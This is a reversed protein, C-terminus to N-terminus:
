GVEPADVPKAGRRLWVNGNIMSSIGGHRDLSDARVALYVHMVVFMWLAFMMGTHFMRVTPIGFWNCPTAALAWIWNGQHYLGFLAFGTIMQLGCACYLAAYTLQQLPNHALYVPAEEKILAYHQVVRGLNRVDEKRKLPWWETWRLHPDRAVFASVVRTIGLVVWFAAAAFHIFRVWGMLFGADEGAHAEPGFFPHMIFYGSCSLTFITAVNAWHQFRLSLSWVPVEVWNAPGTSELGTSVGEIGVHVFGQLRFEGVTDGEGVLATAVALARWGRKAAWDANRRVLSRNKRSIKVKNLVADLAGRMIVIDTTADDKLPFDRVMSVSYRREPTAPDVDAPDAPSVVLDPRRVDLAEAVAFDTPDETDSPAAAAALALIRGESLKGLSFAGGVKLQVDEPAAVARSPATATM